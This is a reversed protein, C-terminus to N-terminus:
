KRGRPKGKAASKKRRVIPKKKAGATASPRGVTKRAAGRRSATVPQPGGSATKKKKSSSSDSTATKQRRMPRRREPRKDPTTEIFNYLEKLEISRLERCEGLELKGLKLPGFQVRVLNMVKHGARAMMRRIERNKGERLELEVFTSRGKRKLTKIHQFRFFGDSFYMGNRLERLTEPTPLGAVQVRYKRTVEYRPHAMHEALAGDNTILLLGETNEDLRGVTFLRRDGAGVLDVARPRGGPDKNTCVVGKPKNLLFYQYRPQILREGDLAIEQDGPRVADAPNKVVKGDVSVRGERIFEECNRRSDVGANALFKQLRIGKEGDELCAPRPLGRQATQTRRTKRSAKKQPSSSM